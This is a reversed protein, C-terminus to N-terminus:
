VAIRAVPSEQSQAISGLLSVLAALEVKQPVHLIRM